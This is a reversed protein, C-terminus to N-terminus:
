GCWKRGSFGASSILRSIHMTARASIVSSAAVVSLVLVSLDGIGFIPNNIGYRWIVAVLIILMLSLVGLGGIIAFLGTVRGLQKDMWDLFGDM